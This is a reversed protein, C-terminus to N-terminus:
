QILGVIGGSMESLTKAMLEKAPLVRAKWLHLPTELSVGCTAGLPMEGEELVSGKWSTATEKGDEPTFFFITIALVFRNFPAHM